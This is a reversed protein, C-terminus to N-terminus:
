RRPVLDSSSLENPAQEVLERLNNRSIAIRDDIESITQSSAPVRRQQLPTGINVTTKTRTAVAAKTKRTVLAKKAVTRRKAHQLPKDVLSTASLVM